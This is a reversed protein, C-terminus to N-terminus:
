FLGTLYTDKNTCKVHVSQSESLNYLKGLESFQQSAANVQYLKVPPGTDKIIAKFQWWLCFFKNAHKAGRHPVWVHWILTKFQRVTHGPLM